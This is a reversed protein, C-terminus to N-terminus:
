FHKLNDNLNNGIPQSLKVDDNLWTILIDTM